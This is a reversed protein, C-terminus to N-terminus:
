EHWKALYTEYAAQWQPSNFRGASAHTIAIRWTGMRLGAAECSRCFDMDYMHFDFREDFMVGADLLTTTKAALFVGDLLKCEVEAAGWYAVYEENKPTHHAVSGSLYQTDDWIFSKGDPKVGVFGWSMQRPLRRQNGAIGVVDFKALAERLREVLWWDEIYADDHLFLLIKDRNSPNRIATNYIKPLGARNSYHIAAELRKELRLKRLSQALLATRQFLRETKATATVIRVKANM